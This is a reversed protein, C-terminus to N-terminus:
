GNCGEFERIKPISDKFFIIVSLKIIMDKETTLSYVYLFACKYAYIDFLLFYCFVCCKYM